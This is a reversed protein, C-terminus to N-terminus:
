RRAVTTWRQGGSSRNISRFTESCTKDRKGKIRPLTPQRVTFLFFSFLANNSKFLSRQWTRTRTPRDIPITDRKKDYGPFDCGSNVAMKREIGKLSRSQERGAERDEKRREYKGKRKKREKSLELRSKVVVESRSLDARWRVVRIETPYSLDLGSKVPTRITTRYTLPCGCGHRLAVSVRIRAYYLYRGVYHRM